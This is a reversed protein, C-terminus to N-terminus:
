LILSTVIIGVDNKGHEYINERKNRKTGLRVDRVGGLPWRNTPMTCILVPTATNHTDALPDDNKLFGRSGLDENRGRESEEM